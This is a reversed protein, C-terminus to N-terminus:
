QWRVELKKIREPENEKSTTTIVVFRRNVEWLLKKDVTSDSNDAIRHIFITKIESTSGIRPDITIDERRIELDDEAATYSYIVRQLLTDVMKSSTYGDKLEKSAIDPLSTFDVAYKRFEERPIFTTDTRNGDTEMKIIRYLSTDVQAVQSKLFGNVDFFNQDDNHPEKKEGKCALLLCLFLCYFVRTM